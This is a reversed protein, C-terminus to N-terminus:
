KLFFSGFVGEALAQYRKYEPEEATFTLVYFHNHSLWYQQRWHLEFKGQTGSYEVLYYQAIGDSMEKFELIKVDNIMGIIQQRAGEAVEALPIGPFESLDNIILNFNERFTDNRTELPAYLFFSSGFMGSQDIEWNPPYRLTFEPDAFTAWVPKEGATSSTVTQATAGAFRLLLLLLMLKKM